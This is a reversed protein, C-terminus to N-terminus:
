VTPEIDAYSVFRSTLRGITTGNNNDNLSVNDFHTAASLATEVETREAIKVGNEAIMQEWDRYKSFAKDIDARVDPRDAADAKLTQITALIEANSPENQHM